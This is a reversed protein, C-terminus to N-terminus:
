DASGGGTGLIAGYVMDEYSRYIEYAEPDDFPLLQSFSFVAIGREPDITYYTNFLGSWYGVGEPRAGDEGGVEIAWSLSYGDDYEELYSRDREQEQAPDPPMTVRVGDPLQDTMMLSVM